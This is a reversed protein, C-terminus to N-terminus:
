SRRAHPDHFRRLTEPMTAYDYKHEHNKYLWECVKIIDYSELGTLLIIVEDLKSM